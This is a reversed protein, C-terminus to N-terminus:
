RDVSLLFIWDSKTVTQEIVRIDLYACMKQVLIDDFVHHHLCRNEFNKLSRQKFQGLSGAPLDLSLDHLHLIEDLHTLDHEDIENLFDELLHEFSTIPRKHDFNHDKRPLILIISEKAVRKWEHLAKLPNAVHELCNSSLIFDFESAAFKSLDTAELVHQKGSKNKYYTVHSGLRGEWITSSSFNAFELALCNPYVPLKYKFIISPGGVELGNRNKTADIYVDHDNIKKGFFNIVEILPEKIAKPLIKAIARKM